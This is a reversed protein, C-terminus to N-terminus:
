GTNQGVICQVMYKYRPDKGSNKLAIKVGDALTKAMSPLEQQNPDGKAM